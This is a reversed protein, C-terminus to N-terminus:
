FTREGVRMIGSPLATSVAPEPTRAVHAEQHVRYARWGLVGNRGLVEAFAMLILGTTWAAISTIDHNASFRYIASGGGHTAYLEFALRSGVGVIWLIAAAAGAKAFPRGESDPTIRTFLACLAGLTLGVLPGGLTLWLDNGATPFGHLYTHGFYVVLALPWLLSLPTLRRGHIQRIVLAVLLGNILYDTISM